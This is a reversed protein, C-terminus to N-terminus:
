RKGKAAVLTRRKAVVGPVNFEDKLATVMQRLVTLNWDLVKMPAKGEAVAAVTEGLDVCDPYWDSRTSIASPGTTEPLPLQMNTQSQELLQQADQQGALEVNGAQTLLEEAANTSGAAQLAASEQRLRAAEAQAQAEREAAERAIQEQAKRAAERAIAQEAQIRRQEVDHYHALKHALVAGAEELASLTPRFLDDVAKGADIIPRKLKQRKADITKHFERISSYEISAIEQTGPDCIDFTKAFEVIDRTQASPLQPAAISLEVLNPM